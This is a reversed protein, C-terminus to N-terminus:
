LMLFNYFRIIENGFLFTIIGSLSMFPGFPLPTKRTGKKTLLMYIAPFFGIIFSLFFWPIIKPFGLYLGFLFSLKFDGGGMGGKSLVIILFFIIPPIIVGILTNVYNKELIFFIIGFFMGFLFPEDPIEMTQLDIISIVLLVSSFIVFKLYLLSYGFFLFSFLFVLGSLIEVIPYLPSIKEDCYRCRGKLFIYSLIPILYFFSLKHGCNPCFSRGSSVQIKRPIRYILVNLFSGISAGLIFNFILNFIM